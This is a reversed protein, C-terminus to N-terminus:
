VVKFLKCPLQTLYSTQCEATVEARRIYKLDQISTQEYVGYTEDTWRARNDRHVARCKFDLKSPEAVGLLQEHPACSSAAQTRNRRRAHAQACHRHDCASSADPLGRGPKWKMTM